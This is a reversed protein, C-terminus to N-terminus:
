RRRVKGLLDFGEDAKPDPMTVNESAPTTTYDPKSDDVYEIGERPVNWGCGHCVAGPSVMCQCYPCRVM